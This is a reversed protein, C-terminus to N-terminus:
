RQATRSQSELREPTGRSELEPEHEPQVDLELEPAKSALPAGRALFWVLFGFLSLELWPHISVRGFDGKWVILAWYLYPMWAGVGFALGWRAAGRPDFVAEAGAQAEEGSQASQELDLADLAAATRDLLIQNQRLTKYEVPLTLLNVVVAVIGALMHVSPPLGFARHGYGLVAAVVISLVALLATPYIKKHAFFDNLERLYESGLPRANTAERLVRGTVIMFVILLSHAASACIASILGVQLHVPSHRVGSWLTWILGPVVLVALAAFYYVMRM